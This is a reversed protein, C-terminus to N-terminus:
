RRKKIKNMIKIFKSEIKTTSCNLEKALHRKRMNFYKLIFHIEDYNLNEICKKLIYDNNLKYEYDSFKFLSNNMCFEKFGSLGYYSGSDEISYIELKKSLYVQKILLGNKYVYRLLSTAVATTYYSKFNNIPNELDLLSRNVTYVYSFYSEQMLDQIECKTRLNSYINKIKFKTLGDLSSFTPIIEGKFTKLEGLEIKELQENTLKYLNIDM